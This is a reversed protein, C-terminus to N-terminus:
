SNPWYLTEIAATHLVVKAIGMIKSNTHSIPIYLSISEANASQDFELEGRWFEGRGNHYTRNWWDEDAQYYDSTTNTQAVNLGFQDTIFLESIGPNTSQIRLLELAAENRELQEMEATSTEIRQAKQELQQQDLLNHNQNAETLAQLILPHHLLPTLTNFVSELKVDLSTYSLESTTEELVSPACSVLLLCAITLLKSPQM